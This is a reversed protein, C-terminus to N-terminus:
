RAARQDVGQQTAALRKRLTPICKPGADNMPKVLLSGANDEDGFIVKGVGFEAFGKAGAGYFLSVNRQDVANECTIMPADVQGNRTIRYLAKTHGGLGFGPVPFLEAIWSFSACVPAGDNTDVGGSQNFNLQVRTARMLDPYM